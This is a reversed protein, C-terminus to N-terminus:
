NFRSPRDFSPMQLAGDLATCHGWLTRAFSQPLNFDTAFRLVGTQSPRRSVPQQAKPTM